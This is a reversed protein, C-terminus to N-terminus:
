RRWEPSLRRAIAILLPLILTWGAGELALAATRNPLM